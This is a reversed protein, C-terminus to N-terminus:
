FSIEEFNIKVKGHRTEVIIPKEGNTEPINMNKENRTITEISYDDNSGVFEVEIQGNRNVLEAITKFDLSQLEISGNRNEVIIFGDSVIDYGSIVGNTSVIELENQAKLCFAVIAGNNNEIKIHKSESCDVNIIGNKGVVVLEKEAKVSNVVTAGNLNRIHASKLELDEINLNGNKNFAILELDKLLSEPIQLELFGQEKGLLNQAKETKSRESRPVIILEEEDDIIDYFDKESEFCTVRVKDDESKKIYLPLSREGITIQTFKGDFEYVKKERPYLSAEVEASNKLYKYGAVGGGVLIGTLLYRKKM